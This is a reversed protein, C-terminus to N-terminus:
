DREDNMWENMWKNRWENIEENMWKKMWENMWENMWECKRKNVLGDGVDTSLSNIQGNISKNIGERKNM